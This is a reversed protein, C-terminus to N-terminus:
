DRRRLSDAVGKLGGAGALILALERLAKFETENFNSANNWMVFAAAVMVGTLVLAFKMFSWLPHKPNSLDGLPM